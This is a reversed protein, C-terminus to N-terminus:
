SGFFCNSQSPIWQRKAHLHMPQFRKTFCPNMYLSCSLRVVCRLKAVLLLLYEFLSPIRTHSRTGALSRGRPAKFNQARKYTHTCAPPHSPTHPSTHLPRFSRKGAGFGGFGNNNAGGFDFGGAAAAPQGLARAAAQEVRFTDYNCDTCFRACPPLCFPQTILKFYHFAHCSWCFLLLLQSVSVPHNLPTGTVPLCPECLLLQMFLHALTALFLHM